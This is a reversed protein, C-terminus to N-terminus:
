LSTRLNYKRQFDDAPDSRRLLSAGLQRGAEAPLHIDANNIKLVVFERAGIENAKICDDAARILAFGIQHATPTRVEIRKNDFVLVVLPGESRVRIKYVVPNFNKNDRFVSITNETVLQLM